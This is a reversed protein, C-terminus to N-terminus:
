LDNLVVEVVGNKSFIVTDEEYRFAGNGELWIYKGSGTKADIQKFQGNNWSPFIDNSTKIDAQGFCGEDGSHKRLAQHGFSHYFCLCIFALCFIRM